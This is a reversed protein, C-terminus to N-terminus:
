FSSIQIYQMPTKLKRVQGFWGVTHYLLVAAYIGAIIIIGGIILFGPIYALITIATVIEDWLGTENETAETSAAPSIDTTTSPADTSLSETTLVTLVVTHRETVTVTSTFVPQGDEQPQYLTLCAEKPDNQCPTFIFPAGFLSGDGRINPIDQVQMAAAMDISDFLSSPPQTHGVPTINMRLNLILFPFPLSHICIRSVPSVNGPPSHAVSLSQRRVGSGVQNPFDVDQQKNFGSVVM